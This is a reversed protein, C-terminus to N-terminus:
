MCILPVRWPTLRRRDVFAAQRVMVAMNLGIDADVLHAATEAGTYVTICFVVNFVENRFESLWFACCRQGALPLRWVRVFLFQADIDQFTCAWFRM